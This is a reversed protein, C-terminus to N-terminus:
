NCQHTAHNRRSWRTSRPIAIATGTLTELRLRLVGACDPRSRVGGDARQARGHIGAGLMEWPRRFDYGKASFHWGDM